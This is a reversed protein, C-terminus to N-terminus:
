NNKYLYLLLLLLAQSPLHVKLDSLRRRLHVVTSFHSQESKYIGFFLTPFLIVSNLPLLTVSLIRTHLIRRPLSDRANALVNTM